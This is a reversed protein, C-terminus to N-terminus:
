GRISPKVTNGYDYSLKYEIGPVEDTYFQQLKGRTINSDTDYSYETFMFKGSINNIEIISLYPLYGYFDGTFTKTPKQQIRMDDEASIQLIRKEELKGTRTWLTTLTVKDSKYIAGEFIDGISDGNYVEQNEKIISSPAVLRSVTHFEGLYKNQTFTNILDLSYIETETANEPNQIITGSKPVYVEVFVNGDELLPSSQINYEKTIVGGSVAEDGFIILSIYPFYVSDLKWIGNVDMAYLGQRIRIFFRTAGNAKLIIQFNFSDDKKLSVSDSAAILKIPSLPTTDPTMKLSRDSNDFIIYKSNTPNITWNPYNLNTHYFNKNLLLGTKFGYKYNLRYASIAGKTQIQQNGGCHHPYYNDIQSGVKKYLSKTFTTNLTNDIFTVNNSFENPRYVWWKGDQQTICASFINLVSNLVEECTMTTGGATSQADIKFFRDASVYTDKLINSGAYDIYHVDVSTNITMVLGTRQLCAFIVEYVSMKGTYNLGNPKVFALDKLSGLGDIFDLDVLWIDRVFSQTVGDPKLFGNFVTQSNKTVKVTYKKEDAESFEDFTLSPNAELQLNLATGRITDLINDVNGKDISVKGFIETSVGEFGNEFIQVLYGTYDNQIFYKEM